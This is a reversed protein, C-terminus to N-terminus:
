CILKRRQNRKKGRTFPPSTEDGTGCIFCAVGPSPRLSDSDQRLQGEKKAIAANSGRGSIQVRLNEEESQRFVNYFLALPNRIFWSVKLELNSSGLFDYLDQLNIHMTGFITMNRGEFIVHQQRNNESITGSAGFVLHPSFFCFTGTRCFRWPSESTFSSPHRRHGTFFHKQDFHWRTNSGLPKALTDDM